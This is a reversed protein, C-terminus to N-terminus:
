HIPSFGRKDGWKNYHNLTIVIAEKGLDDVTIVISAIKLNSKSSELSKEVMNFYDAFIPKMESM